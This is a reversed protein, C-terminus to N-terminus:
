VGAAGKRIRPDIVAYLLDVAFNILVYGVSFVLVVAQVLTYDEGFIAGIILRGMGPIAFLSEVILAGGILGATNLGVATVLGLSSPRLAHRWLIRRESYGRARALLVFDDQLTAILDSRLLRLYVAVLSLALTISPLLLPELNGWPDDNFGPMEIAVAPLWGLRVAVTYQLYVGLVFAPLALFGFATASTFRDFRSGPNRAAYIASPVSIALALVQALIMLELTKPLAEGIRSAASAGSNTEGLDGQLVDGLWDRYRELLSGDLGLEARRQEIAEPTASAGLSAAVPDGPVLDLLIFSFFSVVLAVFLLRLVRQGVAVAFDV